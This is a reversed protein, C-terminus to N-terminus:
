GGGSKEGKEMQALERLTHEVAAIIGMAYRKSGDSLSDRSIHGLVLSLWGSEGQDNMDTHALRLMMCNLLEGIAELAEVEKVQGVEVKM